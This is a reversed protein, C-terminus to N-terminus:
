HLDTATIPCVPLKVGASLFSYANLSTVPVTLEIGRIADDEHTLFNGRASAITRSTLVPFPANM